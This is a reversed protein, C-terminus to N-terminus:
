TITVKTSGITLDVKGQCDFAVDGVVVHFTKKIKEAADLIPQIIPGRAMSEKLATVFPDEPEATGSGVVKVSPVGAPKELPKGVMDFRTACVSCWLEETPKLVTPELPRSCKPCKLSM